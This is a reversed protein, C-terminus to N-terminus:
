ILRLMEVAEGRWWRTNGDKELLAFGKIPDLDVIKGEMLKDKIKVSVMKDMVGSFSRWADQIPKLERNIIKGYWKDLQCILDAAIVEIKLGATKSTEKTLSTTIDKLEAPIVSEPMDINLGLGLVAANPSKNIYKSEVIIGAIKRNNIIVDNPWRISAALNFKDTLLDAVALAGISMLLFTEEPFQSPYLVVSLWVGKQSPSFWERGFRGRGKFQEDALIVTGEEVGRSIELWALDNTSTVKKHCLVKRGITRTNLNTFYSEEM